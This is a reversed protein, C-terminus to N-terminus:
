YINLSEIVFDIGSLTVSDRFFIDEFTLESEVYHIFSIYKERTIFKNLTIKNFFDKSKFTQKGLLTGDESFFKFNHTVNIKRGLIMARINEAIFDVRNCDTDIVFFDSVNSPPNLIAWLAYPNHNINKLYVCFIKLKLLIFKKLFIIIRDM